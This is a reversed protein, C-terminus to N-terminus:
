GVKTAVLMLNHSGLIYPDRTISSFGELDRFGAAEVIGAFERYTHVQSFGSKKEIKGNQIFTFDMNLRAQVPDYRNHVAFLIDGVEWWGREKFNPLISEAVVGTDVVFRCGPKLARAVARFFSSMGGDDLGGLSNGMCFAGDFEGEWPLDHMPRNEWSISLSREASAVRAKDLFEVSIDVGTLRFGRGALELSHRGGGCPVDLVSAGPSLQLASELFDSEARTQEEPIAQMWLDVFTGSFFDRAWDEADTM